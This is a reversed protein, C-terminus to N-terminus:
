AKKMELLAGEKLAYTSVLVEEPAALSIIFEVLLMAVVIMDSRETPIEPMAQRTELDAQLLLEGLERLKGVELKFAASSIQEIGFLDNMVDFVGAAGVLRLCPNQKLADSLPVLQQKLFLRLEAVAEASIPESRHFRKYLVALGVPFSQSFYTEGGETIIFEVSGGGIDMILSRGKLQTGLAWNVGKAILRAEEEGSIVQVSIEAVEEAERMFDPGNGARRMAATALAQYRQVGYEDMKQRFAQLAAQGRKYPAAGINKIGAEALKIFRRERYVEELQGDSAM